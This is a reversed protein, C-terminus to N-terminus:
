MFVTLLHLLGMRESSWHTAERMMQQEMELSLCHMQLQFLRQLHIRFCDLLYQTSMPALNLRLIREHKRIIPQLSLHLVQLQQITLVQLQIGHLHSQIRERHWLTTAQPWQLMAQQPLM